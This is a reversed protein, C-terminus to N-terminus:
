PYTVIPQHAAIQNYVYTRQESTMKLNLQLWLNLKGNFRNSTSGTNQAGFVLDAAADEMATYSGSVVQSGILVNDVRYNITTGDVELEVVIYDSTNPTHAATIKKTAVTSNDLTTFDAEGTGFDHYNQYEFESGPSFNRKRMMWQQGAISDYKVKYIVTRQFDVLGDGWSLGAADPILLHSASGNFQAYDGHTADNGITMSTLQVTHNTTVDEISGDIPFYYEFDALALPVGATITVEHSSANGNWFNITFTQGETGVGTVDIEIYQGTEFYRWAAFTANGTITPAEMNASFGSGTIVLTATSSSALVDSITQVVVKGVYGGEFNGGMRWYDFGGEKKIFQAWGVGGEDRIKFENKRNRNGTLRVNAGPLVELEFQQDRTFYILDDTVYGTGTSLLTATQNETGQFVFQKSSDKNTGDFDTNVATIPPQQELSGGDSGDAGRLDGTAFGLGDDSTFTVVGTNTDYSGGTFGLGDQGGGGVASGLQVLNFVNAATKTVMFISFQKDEIDNPKNITVNGGNAITLNTGSQIIFTKTGNAWGLDDPFTVTQDNGTINLTLNPTADTLTYSTARELYINALIVSVPIRGETGDALSYPLFENGTIASANPLDIIKLLDAQQKEVISIRDDLEKLGM